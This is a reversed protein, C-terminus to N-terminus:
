FIADLLGFFVLLGVIFIIVVICGIARLMRSEKAAGTFAAGAYHNQRPRAARTREPKSPTTM